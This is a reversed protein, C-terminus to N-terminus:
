IQGLATAALLPKLLLGLLAGGKQNLITRKKKIPISKSALLRIHQCKPALRQKQGLTLQVNGKLLNKCCESVANIVSSPAEAIMKKRWKPSSNAIAKLMHGHKQVLPIKKKRQQVKRRVM